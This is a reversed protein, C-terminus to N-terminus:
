SKLQRTKHLHLNQLFPNNAKFWEKAKAKEEDSIEQIRESGADLHLAFALAKRRANADDSYKAEVGYAWAFMPQIVQYDKAWQLALQRYGSHGSDEYLWECAEVIQYWSFM